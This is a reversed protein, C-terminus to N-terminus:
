IRESKVAIVLGEFEQGHGANKTYMIEGSARNSEAVLVNQEKLLSLLHM